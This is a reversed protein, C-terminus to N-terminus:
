GGAQRSANAYQRLLDLLDRSTQELDRRVAAAAGDGDAKECAALIERHSALTRGLAEPLNWFQRIYRQSSERLQLIRSWLRPRESALYHVRHFELDAELFATLSVERRASAQMGELASMMRGLVEPTMREAGLRAALAELGVRMAYLEEVEEVSLVAVTAGRHPVFVILGEAELIRLAERVPVRSVGFANALELQNLKEGGDIAGELIARRLTRAVMEQATHFQPQAQNAMTLLNM